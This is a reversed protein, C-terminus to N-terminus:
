LKIESIAQFMTKYENWIANFECEKINKTQGNFLDTKGYAHEENNCYNKERTEERVSVSGTINDYVMLYVEKEIYSLIIKDAKEEIKVNSIGSFTIIKYGPCDEDITKTYPNKILRNYILTVVKKNNERNSKLTLDKLQKELKAIEKKVTKM